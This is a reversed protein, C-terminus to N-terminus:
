ESRLTYRTTIKETTKEEPPALEEAKQPKLRGTRTVEGSFEGKVFRGATIDFLVTGADTGVIAFTFEPVDVSTQWKTNVTIVACNKGQWEEFGTLTATVSWSFMRGESSSSGEITWPEGKNIKGSPLPFLSALEFQIGEEAPQSPNEASYCQGKRDMVAKVEKSVLSVAAKDDGWLMIIWYYVASTTKGNEPSSEYAYNYSLKEGEAAKWFLEVEQGSKESEAVHVTRCGCPALFALFACFAAIHCIRDPM